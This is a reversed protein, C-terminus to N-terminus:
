KKCAAWMTRKTYQNDQDSDERNIVDYGHERCLDGIRVFCKDWGALSQKDQERLKLIHMSNKISEDLSIAGAKNMAEEFHIERKLPSDITNGSCDLQYVKRGDPGYRFEETAYCNLSILLITCLILSRSM